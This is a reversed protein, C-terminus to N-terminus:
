NCTNIEEHQLLHSQKMQGGFRDLRKVIGRNKMTNWSCNKVVASINATIPPSDSGSPNVVLVVKIICWDCCAIIATTFFHQGQFM